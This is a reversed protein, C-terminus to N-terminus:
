YQLQLYNQIMEELGGIVEPAIPPKFHDAHVAFTHLLVRLGMESSLRAVLHINIVSSTSRM